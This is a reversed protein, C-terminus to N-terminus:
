ETVEYIGSDTVIFVGFETQAYQWIKEDFTKMLTMKKTKLDVKYLRNNGMNPIFLHSETIFISEPFSLFESNDDWSYEGIKFIEKQKPISVQSVTQGTPFALWMSNPPEFKIDYIPHGIGIEVQWELTKNGYKDFRYIKDEQHTCFYIDGNEGRTSCYDELSGLLEKEIKKYNKGVTTLGFYEKNVIRFKKKKDFAYFILNKGDSWDITLIESKTIHLYSTSQKDTIKNLIM